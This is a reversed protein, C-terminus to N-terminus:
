AQASRLIRFAIWGCLVVLGRRVTGIRKQRQGEDAYNKLDLAEELGEAIPDGVFPRHEGGRILAVGDAWRRAARDAYESM